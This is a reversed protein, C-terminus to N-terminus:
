DTSSARVSNSTPSDAGGADTGDSNTDVSSDDDSSATVTVLPLGSVDVQESGLWKGLVVDIVGGSVLSDLAKDVAESLATATTSYAVCYSSPEQLAAIPYAGVGNYNAVFQGIVSDAAAFDVAGTKLSEFASQLDTANKLAADGYHDSVEWASMSASQAAVTIGSGSTPAKAGETLSFLAISSKLYPSSLKYDSSAKSVGMVVDVKEKTFTTDVSTGVDVLELKLGMEDALAAAVDVDIGVISGNSEGAYPYNSANVGVRLTGSKNLASDAVAQDKAKPTYESSACGALPLAMCLAVVLAIALVSVRKM